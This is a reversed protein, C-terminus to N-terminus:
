DLGNPDIELVGTIYTDKDLIPAESTINFQAFIQKDICSLGDLSLDFDVPCHCPLDGGANLASFDECVPITPVIPASPPQDKPVFKDLDAQGCASLIMTLIILSIKGM